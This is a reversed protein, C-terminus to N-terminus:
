GLRSAMPASPSPGAPSASAEAGGAARWSSPRLPHLVPWVHAGPGRWHDAGHVPGHVLDLDLRYVGDVIQSQWSRGRLVRLMRTNDLAVEARLRVFGQHVALRTVLDTLTTGIGLGQWTDEVLFGVDGVGSERPVRVLHGLGVVAGPVWAVLTQGLDPDFMWDVLADVVGGDATRTPPQLCRRRLTDVSCRRHMAQVAARDGLSVPRIAVASGPRPTPQLETPDFGMATMM